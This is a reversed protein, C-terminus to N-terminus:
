GTVQKLKSIGGQFHCFGTIPQLVSFWFDVEMDGVASILWKVDHNYFERHILHLFEPTLFHSPEALIWDQWFPKSIGNL